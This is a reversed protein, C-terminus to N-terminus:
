DERDRRPRCSGGASMASGIAVGIAIGFALHNVAIGLATGIAIGFGLYKSTRM